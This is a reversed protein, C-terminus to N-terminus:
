KKISTSLVLFIIGLIFLGGMMMYFNSGWEYTFSWNSIIGDGSGLDAFTVYSAGFTSIIILFVGLFVMGNNTEVKKNNSIQHKESYTVNGEQSQKMGCKPCFKQGKEIENGCNSCFM